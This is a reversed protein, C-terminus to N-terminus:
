RVQVLRDCRADEQDDPLDDCQAVVRVPLDSPERVVVTFWTMVGPRLAVRPITKTIFRAEVESGDPLILTEPTAIADDQASLQGGKPNSWVLHSASAPAFVNMVTQGAAKDGVNRLSVRFTIEPRSPQLEIVGGAGHELDVSLEFRARANLQKMFETHERKAIGLSRFAVILAAGAIIVGLVAAILAILALTHSDGCNLCRVPLPVPRVVVM